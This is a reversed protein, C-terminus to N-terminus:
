RARGSQEALRALRETGEKDSTLEEVTKSARYSWNEVNVTGPVNIRDRTGMADQLPILALTSPAAYIVALLKDRITDDYGRSPDIDELGPIKRLKEREGVPMADYWAATTETDHTANTAISTVPWSEPSRYNDGDKEWRLVRYGPVSLKALSPRLFSPVAGLDEAVIEGWRSMIRMLNEGLAIQANEDAPTFGSTKGDSSRYFTRYLGIVHDLRYLSFLSGARMARGRIWAFNEHELAAWDYVPLGWDQGTPSFDDPPTGVHENMRFLGRNSWVDVSDTGVMFPLDGMLEV